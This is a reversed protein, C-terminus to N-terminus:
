DDSPDLVNEEIIGIAQRTPGDKLSMTNAKSMAQAWNERGLTSTGGQEEKLRPTELLEEQARTRLRGPFALLTGWTTVCM